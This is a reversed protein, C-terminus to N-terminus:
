RRAKPAQAGAPPEAAAGGKEEEPKTEPRKMELPRLTLVVIVGELRELNAATRVRIQKFPNGAQVDVVTGIPIDKPFIRDMGSTVVRDGGNVTDWPSFTARRACKANTLLQRHPVVPRSRADVINAPMVCLLRTVIGGAGSAFSPAARGVSHRLGVQARDTLVM